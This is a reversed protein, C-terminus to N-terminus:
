RKRINILLERLKKILDDNLLNNIKEDSYYEGLLRKEENQTLIRGKRM